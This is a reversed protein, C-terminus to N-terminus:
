KKVFEDIAERLALNPVMDETTMPKRSLPDFHGIKHLHETLASREYSIGSPTLVPDYMISFSIKDCFYDPVEREASNADAQAFIQEMRSYTSEEEERISELLYANDKPNDSASVNTEIMQFKDKFDESVLHRLYTLLESQREIRETEKLKWRLKKAQQVKAIIDASFTYPQKQEQSLKYAIELHGVARNLHKGEETLAQGLFYHAKTSKPNLCLAKDCDLTVKSYHKMKLYCLARNTYYIDHTPSTVIAKTYETVAAYYNKESFFINGKRKFQ